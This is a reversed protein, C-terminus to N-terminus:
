IINLFAKLRNLYPLSVYLCPYSYCAEIHSSIFKEINVITVGSTLQIEHNPIEKEQLQKKVEELEDINWALNKTTKNSVNTLSFNGPLFNKIIVKEIERERETEKVEQIEKEKEKEIIKENEIVKEKEIVKVEQTEEEKVLEKPKEIENRPINIKRFVRWDRQILLDAIDLGNAKEKDRAVRELFDSFIFLTKPLSEEFTKAKEKWENFTKGDKSLDPFVYIFRGELVRLKDLSFSSKNYVALWLFNKEEEPFGFYLTGYVATKPAEVLAIPNSPYKSLLHEGFLCSIFKEQKRYNKLWEPFEKGTQIYEKELISHLFDTAITHNRNNFQKVQIARVKNNIDIFPFTVAGKRYGNPITGLRYLEIVKKIDSVEFPFNVKTLLNNIFTNYRYNKIELTEKFAEFNFFVTESIRNGPFNKKEVTVDTVDTVKEKTVAEKDSIEKSYGDTYPSLFYGCKVERDCRGYKIPLYNKTQIDVFRVFRKKGCSPCFFKKSNKELKFRYDMDKKIEGSFKKKRGDCGDCGDSRLLSLGDL